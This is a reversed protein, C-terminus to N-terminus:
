RSEDRIDGAGAGERIESVKVSVFWLPPKLFANDYYRGPDAAIAPLNTRLSDPLHDATLQWVIRGPSFAFGYSEDKKPVPSIGIMGSIGADRRKRFFDLADADTVDTWLSVAGDSLLVRASVRGSSPGGSFVLRPLSAALHRANSEIGTNGALRRGGERRYLEMMRYPTVRSRTIVETAYAPGKAYGFRRRELYTLIGNKWSADGASSEFLRGREFYLQFPKGAYDYVTQRYTVDFSAGSSMDALRAYRISDEAAVNGLTVAHVRIRKNAAKRAFRSANLSDAFPSNAIVMISRAASASWRTNEVAFSLADAFSKDANGGALKVAALASEMSPLATAPERMAKLPNRDNYPVVFVRSGPAAAFLGLAFDKVAGKMEDFEDKMNWSADFLVVVDHAAAGSRGAPSTILSFLQACDMTALKLYSDSRVSTKAVLSKTAVSYLISEALFGKEMRVIRGSAIYDVFRSRAFLTMDDLTLKKSPDIGMGSLDRELQYPNYVKMGKGVHAAIGVLRAYDAGKAATFEGAPNDVRYQMVAIEAAPSVTAALFFVLILAIM